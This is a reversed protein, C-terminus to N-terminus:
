IVEEVFFAKYFFAKDQDFLQKSREDLCKVKDPMISSIKRDVMMNWYAFRSTPPAHKIVQGSIDAFLEDGMYEFIDSLNFRDYKIAADQLPDCFSGHVLELRNLNSRISEFNEPRLYHPLTQSDYNGTLIYKLYPNKDPELATLAHKTRNALRDSIMYTDVYKFFEKDRGLRGMTFRSFFIKFMLKWRLTNWKKDFFSQRSAILKPAFLNEVARKRHVLPLMRTRFLHFYREFKGQHIVGQDIYQQNHDFYDQAYEPLLPRITSKYVEPRETSPYVGLFALLRDHDLKEFCAKKLEVVALQPISLDVATVRAPGQALMSFANDGGSAISLCQSGPKIDLAKVLIDADEWCSAYRIIEFSARQQIPKSQM